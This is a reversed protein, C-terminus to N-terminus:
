FRFAGLRVRGSPTDLFQELNSGVFQQGLGGARVGGRLLDGSATWFDPETPNGDRFVRKILGNSLRFQQGGESWTNNLTRITQMVLSGSGVLRFDYTENVQVQLSPGSLSGQLTDQHRFEISGPGFDSLVVQAYNLNLTHAQGEFTASGGLGVSLNAGQRQSRLSLNVPGLEGDPDLTATYQLLHNAKYFARAGSSLSGQFQAIVFEYIVGDSWVVRLRNNPTASYSFTNGSQTLTGNLTSNNRSLSRALEVLEVLLPSLEQELDKLKEPLLSAAKFGLGGSNGPPNPTGPGPNGPNPSTTGCACLAAILLSATTWIFPKM